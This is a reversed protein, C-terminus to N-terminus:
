KKTEMINVIAKWDSPKWVYVEEGCEQLREVLKSQEFSLEGRESKLEAYVVRERVCVNDLFGAGSGSVPTVWEGDKTQAARFHYTLWGCSITFDEFMQQFNEESIADANNVIVRSWDTLGTNRAVAALPELAIGTSKTIADKNVTTVKGIIGEEEAKKLWEPKM